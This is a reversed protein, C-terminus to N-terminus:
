GDKLRPALLFTIKGRGDQVEYDARMPYNNGSSITVYEASGKIAKVIHELYELSFISKTEVPTELEPLAKSGIPLKLRAKNTDGEALFIVENGSVKIQIADSVDGAKKLFEALEKVRVQFKSDLKLDPIKPDSMGTHDVLNFEGDHYGVQYKVNHTIDLTIVDPSKKTKKALKLISQLKDVYVGIERTESIELVDFMEPSLVVDVMCVHSPDVTRVKIGDDSINLKIEDTLFGVSKVFDMLANANVMVKLAPGDLGTTKEETEIGDDNDKAKIDENDEM